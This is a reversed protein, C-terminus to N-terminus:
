VGWIRGPSQATRLAARPTTDRWERRGYTITVGGIERLLGKNNTLEIDM